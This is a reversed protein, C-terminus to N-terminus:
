HRALLEDRWRSPPMFPELDRYPVIVANPPAGRVPCLASVPQVALGQFTLYLIFRENEDIYPHERDQPCRHVPSAGAPARAKVLAIFKRYYEQSCLNLLEGYEFLASESSDGFSEYPRRRYCSSINVVEERELDLTLGRMIIPWFAGESQVLAVEVLSVLQRTAYTLRVDIQALAHRFPLPPKGERQRYGNASQISRWEAEELLMEAGQVKDLLDNAKRMRDADPMWTLRPMAIGTVADTLLHWSVGNPLSQEKGFEVRAAQRFHSAWTAEDPLDESLGDWVIIVENAYTPVPVGLLLLFLLIETTKM